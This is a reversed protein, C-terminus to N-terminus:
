EWETM